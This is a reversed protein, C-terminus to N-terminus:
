MLKDSIKKLEESSYFEIVIKGTKGSKKIDVKTHLSERLKESLALLQADKAPHKTHLSMGKARVTEESERVTMGQLMRRFMEDRKKDDSIGVLIRGSSASIKGRSVAEKMEQPLNLLRVANAVAPRSKSVKTGVEDQTLNFEDMLQKYGAAEEIPNLDQRQLNEILALEMKQHDQVRRIFIPVFQLGALKSARLRREGAILEFKGDDTPHAVLPQLIGHLKISEALEELSEPSFNERPQHPNPIVKSVDVYQIHGDAAIPAVAPKEENNVTIKKQPILSGLGRGLSM